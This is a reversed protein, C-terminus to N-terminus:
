ARLLNLGPILPIAERVTFLANFQDGLAASWEGHEVLAGSQIAYMKEYGHARFFDYLDRSSSGMQRLFPDSMEIIVDPHHTHLIDSMGRLVLHEAGEVDIKIFDPKTGPPLCATLPRTEVDYVQGVTSRPRLSATGSHNSPGGYFTCRGASDSIAEDRVAVHGFHNIAVNHALRERTVPSPEFAWVKGDPGVRKALLLTFFGINAGIDVCLDGPGILASMTAATADEYNGTAYVHQDVWDDLQLQIHFGQRTTVCAAGMHPGYERVKRIAFKAFRWRGKEWPTARLYASVARTCLIGFSTRFTKPRTTAM